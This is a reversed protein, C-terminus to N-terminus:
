NRRAIAYRGPAVERQEALQVAERAAILPDPRKLAFANVGRQVVHNAFWQDRKQEAKEKALARGAPQHRMYAAFVKADPFESRVVADLRWAGEYDGEAILGEATVAPAVRNFLSRVHLVTRPWSETTAVPAPEADLHQQIVAVRQAHTGAQLGRYFGRQAESIAQSLNINVASAVIKEFAVTQPRTSTSTSTAQVAPRSATSV